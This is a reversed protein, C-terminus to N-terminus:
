KQPYRLYVYVFGLFALLLPSTVIVFAFLYQDVVIMVASLIWTLVIFVILLLNRRHIFKENESLQQM